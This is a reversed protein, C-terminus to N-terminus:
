KTWENTEKWKLKWIVKKSLNFNWSRFIVKEDVFQFM